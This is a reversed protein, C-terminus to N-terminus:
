DVKLFFKKGKYSLGVGEKSVSDVLAGEIAGHLPVVQNNIIAEHVDSDGVVVGQLNLVPLTVPEPPPTFKPISIPMLIPKKPMEQYIVPKPKEVVPKPLGDDFPNKVNDVEDIFEQDVGSGENAKLSYVGVFLFMIMFFFKIM